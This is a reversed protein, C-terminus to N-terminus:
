FERRSVRGTKDEMSFHEGNRMCAVASLEEQHELWLLWAVLACTSLVAVSVLTM